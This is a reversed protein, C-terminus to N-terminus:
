FLYQEKALNFFAASHLFVGGHIIKSHIYIFFIMIWQIRSIKKDEINSIYVHM